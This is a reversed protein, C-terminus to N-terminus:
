LKPNIPIQGRYGLDSPSLVEIFIRSLNFSPGCHPALFPQPLPITGTFCIMKSHIGFNFCLRKGGFCLGNERWPPECNKKAGEM